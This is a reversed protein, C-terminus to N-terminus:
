GGGGGPRVQELTWRVLPNRPVLAALYALGGLAGAVALRLLDGSVLTLVGEVVVAAVAGALFPRV